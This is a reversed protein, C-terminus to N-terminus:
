SGSNNQMAVVFLVLASVIIQHVDIQSFSQWELLIVRRKAAVLVVIVIHRRRMFGYLSGQNM